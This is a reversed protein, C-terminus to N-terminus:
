NKLKKNKTILLKKDTTFRIPVTAVKNTDINGLLSDSVAERM